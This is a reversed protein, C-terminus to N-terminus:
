PTAASARAWRPERLCEPPATTPAAPASTPTRAVAANLAILERRPQEPALRQGLRQGLRRRLPALLDDASLGGHGPLLMADHEDFKGTVSPRLTENYLADKILSEINPHKEEVVFM